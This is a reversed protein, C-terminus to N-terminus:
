TLRWLTVETHPEEGEAAYFSRAHQDRVQRDDDLVGSMSIRRTRKGRATSREHQLGDLLLNLCRDTDKLGGYIQRGPCSKPIIKVRPFVFVARIGLHVRSAWSKGSAPFPARGQETFAAVAWSRIHREAAITEPPTRLSIKGTRRNKIPAPKKWTQPVGPITFTIM